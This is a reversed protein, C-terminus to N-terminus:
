YSGIFPPKRDHAELADALARLALFLSEYAKDAQTLDIGKECHERAKDLHKTFDAHTM